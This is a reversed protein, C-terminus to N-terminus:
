LHKKSDEYMNQVMELKAADRAKINCDFPLPGGIVDTTWRDPNPWIPQGKEDMKPGLTFFRLLNGCFILLESEAFDQGPCSRKGRGFIHHGKLRPHETLPRKFNPSTEDLWRGPNYTSPDVYREPDQSMAIDLVHVVAGKPFHYGDYTYNATLLRPVGLPVTSKWRVCEKIAARLMPLQPSHKLDVMEDAGVVVQDIQARVREQWEPHLIMAVIFVIAPGGITFIGVTCLMGVACVAEQENAFLLKNDSGLEKVSLSAGTYNQRIKDPQASTRSLDFMDRWLKAEREQRERVGRQGPALREPLHRLFPVLNALPGSPGLQSIFVGANTSHEVARHATGYALRSSVRACFLHTLHHFHSPQAAVEHMFRKMELGIHGYYRNNVNRTMMAHAFKRQRHFHETYGLLPLYKYGQTVGPYTGLDARASSLEANKVLLDQAVDERAVWIHTEGGLTCSFLENYQKSFKHMSKWAEMRDVDHIRGLYPLTSRPGPLHKLRSGFPPLECTFYRFCQYAILLSLCVLLISQLTLSSLQAQSPLGYSRTSNSTSNISELLVHTDSIRRDALPSEM